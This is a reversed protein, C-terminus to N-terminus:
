SDLLFGFLIIRSFSCILLILRLLVNSYGYILAVKARVLPTEEQM